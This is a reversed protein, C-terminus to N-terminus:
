KKQVYQKGNLTRNGFWFSMLTSFMVEDEQGWVGTKLTILLYIKSVIYMLFMCSTVAPRILANFSDVWTETKMFSHSYLSSLELAQTQLRVEELHNFSTNKNEGIQLKLLELEHKKDKHDQILKLISPFTSSLFGILSGILTFM